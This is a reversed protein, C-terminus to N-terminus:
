FVVPVFACKFKSCRASLIAKHAPIVTDGIKLSVDSFSPNKLLQRLDSQLTSSCKQFARMPNELRLQHDFCFIMQGESTAIFVTILDDDHMDLKGAIIVNFISTNTGRAPQPGGRASRCVL